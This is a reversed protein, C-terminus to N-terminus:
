FFQMSPLEPKIVRHLSQQMVGHWCFRNTIWERFTIMLPLLGGWYVCRGHGELRIVWLLSIATPVEMAESWQSRDAGETQLRSRCEFLWIPMCIPRVKEAKSRPNSNSSPGIILRSTQTWDKAAFRILHFRKAGVQKSIQDKVTPFYPGFLSLAMQIVFRAFDMQLLFACLAM